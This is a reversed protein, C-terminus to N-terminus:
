KGPVRCIVTLIIASRRVPRRSPTCITPPSPDAFRISVAAVASHFRMVTSSIVARSRAYAGGNEGTHSGIRTAARCAAAATRWFPASLLGHGAAREYWYLADAAAASAQTLALEGMGNLAEAAGDRAGFTRYLELARQQSAHAAAYQGTTRQVTGLCTLANAQGLRDGLASSLQLAQQLNAAAALYDGTLDQVSGLTYLAGAEGPRDGLTRCLDLAQELSATAALYNGTLRYAGGLNILARAEAGLGPWAPQRSPPRTFHGPKTGTAPQGRLFSDM